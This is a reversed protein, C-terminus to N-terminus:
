YLLYFYICYFLLKRFGASKLSVLFSLSLSGYLRFLRPVVLQELHDLRHLLYKVELPFLYLVSFQVHIEMYNTFFLNFPVIQLKITQLFFNIIQDFSHIANIFIYEGYFVTSFISTFIITLISLM